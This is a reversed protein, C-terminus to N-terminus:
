LQTCICAIHNKIMYLHNTDAHCKYAYEKILDISDSTSM